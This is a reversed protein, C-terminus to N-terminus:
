KKPNGFIDTVSELYMKALEQDTMESIPKGAKPPPHLLWEQGMVTICALRKGSNDVTTQAIVASWSPTMPNIYIELVSGIGREGRAALTEGRESKLWEILRPYHDCPEEDAPGAAQVTQCAVIIVAACLAMTTKFLTM